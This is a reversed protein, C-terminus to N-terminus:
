DSITALLFGHTHGVFNGAGSPITAERAREKKLEEEEAEIEEYWSKITPASSFGLPGAFALANPKGFSNKYKTLHAEARKFDIGKVQAEAKTLVPGNLLKINKEIAHVLVSTTKGVLAFSPKAATRRGIRAPDKRMVAYKIVVETMTAPKTQKEGQLGAMPVANLLAANMPASTALSKSKETMLRLEREGPAAVKLEVAGFSEKVWERTGQREAAAAIAAIRRDMGGTTATGIRDATAEETM